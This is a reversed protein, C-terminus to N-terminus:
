HTPAKARTTSRCKSKLSANRYRQGLRISFNLEIASLSVGIKEYVWHLLYWNDKMWLHFLKGSSGLINIIGGYFDFVEKGFKLRLKTMVDANNSVCIFIHLINSVRCYLLAHYYHQLLLYVIIQHHVSIVMKFSLRAYNPIQTQYLKLFSFFSM